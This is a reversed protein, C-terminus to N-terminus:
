QPLAFFLQMCAVHYRKAVRNGLINRCFREKYRRFLTLLFIANETLGIGSSPGKTRCRKFGQASILLIAPVGRSCTATRKIVFNQEDLNRGGGERGEGSQCGRHPTSAAKKMGRRGSAEM